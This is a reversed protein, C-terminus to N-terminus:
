RQICTTNRSGYIEHNSKTHLKNIHTKKNICNTNMEHTKHKTKWKKKQMKKEVHPFTYCIFNRFNVHKGFFDCDVILLPFLSLLVLSTVFGWIPCMAHDCRVDHEDPPYNCKGIEYGMCNKFRVCFCGILAWPQFLCSTVAVWIYFDKTRQSAYVKNEDYINVCNLVAFVINLPILVLLCIEVIKVYKLNLCRRLDAKQKNSKNEAKRMNDIVIDEQNRM